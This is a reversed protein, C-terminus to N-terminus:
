WSAMWEAMGYEMQEAKGYVMEGGMAAVTGAVLREDWHWRCYAAAVPGVASQPRWNSCCRRLSRLNGPGTYMCIVANM